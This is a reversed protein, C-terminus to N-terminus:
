LSEVDIVRKADDLNDCVYVTMGHKRMYAIEREQEKNLTEGPRKFEIWFVEKGRGFIRDPVGRRGPSTFKRVWWGRSEAYDCAKREISKELPREKSLDPLEFM